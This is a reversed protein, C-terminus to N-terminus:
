SEPVSLKRATKHIFYFSQVDQQICCLQKQLRTCVTDIIQNTSHGTFFFFDLIYSRFWYLMSSISCNHFSHLIIKFESHRYIKLLQVM